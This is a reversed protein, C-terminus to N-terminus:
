SNRLSARFGGPANVVCGAFNTLHAVYQGNVESMCVPVVDLFPISLGTLTTPVIVALVPQDSTVADDIISNLSPGGGPPDVADAVDGSLDSLVSSCSSILPVSSILQELTTFTNLVLTRADQLTPDVNITQGTPLTADPIVVINKFRRRAYATATQTSGNSQFVGDLPAKVSWSMTVKVGPDILAPLLPALNALLTAPNLGGLGLGGLTGGLGGTLGLTASNLCTQLDNLAGPQALYSCSRTPTGAYSHALNSANTADTMATACADAL